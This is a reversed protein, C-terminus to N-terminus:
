KNENEYAGLREKCREKAPLIYPTYDTKRKGAREYFSLLLSPDGNPLISYLIRINFGNGAIHMSFLGGGINEFEKQRVVDVGYRSLSKLHASFVTFFKKEYGSGVILEILEQIMRGHVDVHGLAEMLMEVISKRNM